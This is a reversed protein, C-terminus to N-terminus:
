WRGLKANLVSLASVGATSTRLVTEGLRVLSAGATELADLERQDFGGEPGVVLTVTPANRLVTEDYESLRLTAGPELVLLIGTRAQECLADLDLLEGIVPVFYRLSQKSAERALKQWRQRGREAKEQNWRSVSRIAQYPYVRDVGVETSAEVAREDRDGKALAQVLVLQPKPADRVEVAEVRCTLSKSGTATVVTEARVGAGNGILVTEGVRLRGVGVAHHAEAGGLSIESGVEIDRQTLSEDFYLSSM